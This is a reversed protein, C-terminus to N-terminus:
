RVINYQKNLEGGFVYQILQPYSKSKYGGECLTLYTTWIRYFRDLNKIQPCQRGFEDKIDNWNKQFFYNWAHLTPDYHNGDVQFSHLDLIKWLDEWHNGQSATLVQGPTSCEMEPFIYEWIFEEPIPSDHSLSITQILMLGSPKIYKKMSRFFKKHNNQGMHEFSGMAIIADFEAPGDGEFNPIPSDTTLINHDYVKVPLGECLTRTYEIQQKSINVCVVKLNPYKDAIYKALSGWGCGFDLVESGPALKDLGVKRCILDLKQLQAQDLNYPDNIDLNKWYGCTYPSYGYGEELTLITNSGLPKSTLFSEFLIPPLDYQVEAIHNPRLFQFNLKKTLVIKAVLRLPIPVQWIVKNRFLREILQAFDDVQIWGDIYSECLGLLHNNWFRQYFDNNLVRVDWPNQGNGIGESAFIAEIKDQVNGKKPLVFSDFVNMKLM